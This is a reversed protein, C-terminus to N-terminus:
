PGFLPPIRKKFRGQKSNVAEVRHRRVHVNYFFLLDRATVFARPCLVGAKVRVELETNQWPVLREANETGSRRSAAARRRGCVRVAQPKCETLRPTVPVYGPPGPSTRGHGDPQCTVTLGYRQSAQSPTGRM